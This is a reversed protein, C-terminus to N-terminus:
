IGSEIEHNVRKHYENVLLTSVSGSKDYGRSRKTRVDRSDVHDNQVFM